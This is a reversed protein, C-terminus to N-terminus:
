KRISLAQPSEGGGGPFKRQPAAKSVQTRPHGLLLGFLESFRVRFSWFSTGPAEPTLKKLDWPSTKLDGTGQQMRQASRAVEPPAGSSDRPRELPARPARPSREPAEPSPGPVGSLSRKPNPLSKPSARPPHMSFPRKKPPTQRSKEVNKPQSKAQTQGLKPRVRSSAPCFCCGRLQHGKRPIQLKKTNAFLHLQSASRDSVM